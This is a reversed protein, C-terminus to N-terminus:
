KNLNDLINTLESIDPDTCGYLRPAFGEWGCNLCRYLPLMIKDEPVDRDGVRTEVMESVLKHPNPSKDDPVHFSNM